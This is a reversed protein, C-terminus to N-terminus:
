WWGRRFIFIRRPGECGSEESDSDGGRAKVVVRKQIRSKFINFSEM